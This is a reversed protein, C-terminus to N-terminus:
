GSFQQYEKELLKQQKGSIGGLVTVANRLRARSLDLGLIAMSDIVSTSVSTGAIAIFLPFLLERIKLQLQEALQVFAQEINDREWIKIDELRWAAFQLIRVCTEPELKSHTFSEPKIAPM